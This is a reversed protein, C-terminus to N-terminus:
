EFAEDIKADIAQYIADIDVEEESMDDYAVVYILYNSKEVIKSAVIKDLGPGPYNENSDYLYEKWNELAQNVEDMMDEKTEIVVILGTGPTTPYIISSFSYYMDSTIGRTELYAADIETVLDNLGVAENIKDLVVKTDYPSTHETTNTDNSATDESTTEDNSCATLSMTLVASLLMIALLKKMIILPEKIYINM